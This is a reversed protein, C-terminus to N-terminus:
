SVINAAQRKAIIKYITSAVPTISGATNNRFTVVCTGVTASPAAEVVIGNLAASAPAIVELTDGLAFQAASSGGLPSGVTCVASVQVSSGAGVAGPSLAATYSIEVLPWIENLQRQQFM